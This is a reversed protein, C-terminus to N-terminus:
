KKTKPTIPYEKNRNKLKNITHLDKGTEKKTKDADVDPLTADVQKVPISTEDPGPKVTEANDDGPSAQANLDPNKFDIKHQAKKQRKAGAQKKIKKM